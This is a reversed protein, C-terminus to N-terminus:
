TRTSLPAAPVTGTITTGTGVRSDVALTGGIADLRDAIGQLGTGYGTAHPDFGRGDDMVVFTLHGDSQSLAVSARSAEAYKAVNNMAELCSFYVAAEVDQAYRAVGNASVTTPVPAKRAQAELATPLGKDALLPPYIGRALDRLDELADGARAQLGDLIEATKSADRDLMTRALKLQVALAVLQQQAGDHLNRELKRREEDQAAVLRQRSARLEEILRVNRLVLGAQSALDEVLKHRAPDMPDSAPMAVSLAGLREGQHLVEVADEPPDAPPTAGAPFTASPHLEDGVRLWVVAVEAGTGAALVQAMRPLVDDAGYAGGMRGSFDALVEYPTARKGYVIRDALRRARDRMPQFALALVVAAAFSLASSDFLQSGLGVIAAYVLAIFLAMAGVIVTKRIVLDLDYLRYKLIALGCAVPIGVALTLFTAMFVIDGISNSDGDGSAIGVAINAALEILFAVGVFRIWRIQQRVDPSAGRYRVVIAVGALVAAAASLLGGALTAAHLPTEMSDIGFPNIVTVGTLDAFAGTLRGPTLAFSVVTITPGFITLWLVPRWRPSPIRGDPFLLFLPIFATLMVVIMWRDVWAALRGFPLSGPHIALGETAYDGVLFAIATLLPLALLLWGITNGPQRTVIAWGIAAFLASFALTVVVYILNSVGTQDTLSGTSRGLWVHGVQLAVIAVVIVLAIRRSSPAPNM